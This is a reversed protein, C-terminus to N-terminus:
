RTWALSRDERKGNRTGRCGKSIEVKARRQEKEQLAATIAARMKRSCVERSYQTTATERAAYAMKRCVQASYGSLVGVSEAIEEVTCKRLLVGSGGVDVGCAESVVPILGQNMCELVSTAVGEACSPLITWNCREMLDYFRGSRPQIWEVVHINRRRLLADRYVKAFTREIRTCIWLEEKELMVFADLLLDLGKHVNGPGAFFLFHRRGALFDKRQIDVTSDPLVAGPITYVSPFQAFTRRTYGNGVGMLSDHEMLAGDESQTVLRDPPLVAGHRQRLAELRGLERRNHFRWHCGTFFYIKTAEPGLSRAISEFNYGGHGIFVDYSKQPCFRTDRYDVVDVVYRLSNLIRAM